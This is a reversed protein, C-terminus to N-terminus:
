RACFRAIRLRISRTVRRRKRVPRRHTSSRLVGTGRMKGHSCYEGLPGNMSGEIHHVVGRDMLDIVPEHCPFSASPFWMLDKVGMKAATQLAALAVRDGNRLHHHSAIVMGDSLGCRELATRLDPVRKDGSNPYDRCSRIPAGHKRGEPRHEGVGKFPPQQRDNVVKPVRRGAANVQLGKGGSM